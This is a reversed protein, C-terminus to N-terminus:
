EGGRVASMAREERDRYWVLINDSLRVGPWIGAQTLVEYADVQDTDEMDGEFRARAECECELRRKSVEVRSSTRAMGGEILADRQWMSVQM